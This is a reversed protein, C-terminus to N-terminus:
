KLILYVKICFCVCLVYVFIYKEFYFMEKYMKWGCMWSFVKEGGMRVCIECM